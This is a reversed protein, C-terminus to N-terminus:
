SEAGERVTLGALKDTVGGPADTERDEDREEGAPQREEPQPLEEM